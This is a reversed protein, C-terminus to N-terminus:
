GPIKINRMGHQAPTATLYAHLQSLGSSPMEEEDFLYASATTHIARLSRFVRVFQVQELTLLCVTANDRLPQAALISEGYRVAQSIDASLFGSRRGEQTKMEVLSTYQSNGRSLFLFDPTEGKFLLELDSTPERNISRRAICQAPCSYEKAAVTIQKKRGCDHRDQWVM